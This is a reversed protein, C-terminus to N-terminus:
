EEGPGGGGNPVMVPADVETILLACGSHVHLAADQGDTVVRAQDCPRMTAPDVPQVHLAKPYGPQAHAIRAKLTM